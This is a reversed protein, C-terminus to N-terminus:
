DQRPRQLGFGMEHFLYQCRRVKIALSFLKKILYALSKGDWVPYEWGIDTPLKTLILHKLKEQQQKTLRPPRGPQKKDKLGALGQQNYRQVWLGITTRSKGIRRGVEAANNDLQDLLLLAKYRLKLKEGKEKEYLGRVKERDIKRTFKVPM